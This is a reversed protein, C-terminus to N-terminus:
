FSLLTSAEAWNTAHDTAYCCFAGASLMGHPHYGMIYNRDATLPAVRVIRVPFFNGLHRWLAWRRVWGRGPSTFKLM